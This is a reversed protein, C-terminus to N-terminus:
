ITVAAQLDKCIEFVNDKEAHEIVCAWRKQNNMIFIGINQENCFQNVIATPFQFPSPPM